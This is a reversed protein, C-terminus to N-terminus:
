DLRGGLVVLNRWGGRWLRPRQTRWFVLLGLSVVAPQQM